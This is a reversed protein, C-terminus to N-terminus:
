RHFVHEMSEKYQMSEKCQSHLVYLLKGMVERKEAKCLRACGQRPV